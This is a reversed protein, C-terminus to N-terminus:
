FRKGSHPVDAGAEFRSGDEEVVVGAIGRSPCSEAVGRGRGRAYQIHLVLLDSGILSKYGFFDYNAAIYGGCLRAARYRYFVPGLHGEDALVAGTEFFTEAALTTRELYQSAGFSKELLCNWLAQKSPPERGSRQGAPLRQGRVVDEQKQIHCIALGWIWPGIWFDWGKVM